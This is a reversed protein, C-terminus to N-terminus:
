GPSDAFEAQIKEMVEDRWSRAPAELPMTASFSFIGCAKCEFTEARELTAATTQGGCSMCLPPEGSISEPLASANLEEWAQMSEEETKNNSYLRGKSEFESLRRVYEDLPVVKPEAIAPILVGPPCIETATFWSETKPDEITAWENRREAITRIERLLDIIKKDQDDPGNRRIESGNPRHYTGWCKGDKSHLLRQWVGYTEFTDINSRLPKRWIMEYVIRTFPPDFPGEYNRGFPVCALDAIVALKEILVSAYSMAPLM